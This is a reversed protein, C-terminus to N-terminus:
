LSFQENWVPDLTNMKIKTMRVNEMDRLEALVIKKVRRGDRSM